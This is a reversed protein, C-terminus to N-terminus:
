SCELKFFVAGSWQSQKKLEVRGVEYFYLTITCTQSIATSWRWFSSSKNHITQKLRQSHTWMDREKRGDEEERQEGRRPQTPAHLGTRALNRSSCATGHLLACSPDAGNPPRACALVNSLRHRWRRLFFFPCPCLRLLTGRKKKRLGNHQTDTTNTSLKLVVEHPQGYCTNESCRKLLEMFFTSNAGLELNKRSNSSSSTNPPSNISHHQFFQLPAREFVILPYACYSFLQKLRLRRRCKFRRVNSCSFCPCLWQQYYQHM